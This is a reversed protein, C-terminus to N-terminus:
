SLVGFVFDVKGVVRESSLGLHLCPLDNFPLPKEGKQEKASAGCLSCKCVKGDCKEKGVTPKDAQSCRPKNKAM